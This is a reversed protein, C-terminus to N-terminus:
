LFGDRIGKRAIAQGRRADEKDEKGSAKGKEKIAHGAAITVHKFCYNSGRRAIHCIFTSM